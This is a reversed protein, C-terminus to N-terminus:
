PTPLIILAEQYPEETIRLQATYQFRDGNRRVDVDLEGAPVAALEVKGNENTLADRHFSGDGSVTVEADSVAERTEEMVLIVVRRATKKREGLAAPRLRTALADLLHESLERSLLGDVPIGAERQFAEIAAKTKAGYIGDIAGPDYELLELLEQARGTTLAGEDVLRQIDELAAAAIQRRAGDIDRRAQERESARYEYGNCRHSYDATLENYRDIAHRTALRPRIAQLQVHRSMCWRIEAVSFPRNKGIAPKVTQPLEQTSPSRVTSPRTDAEHMASPFSALAAISALGTLWKIM